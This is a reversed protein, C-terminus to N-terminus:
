KLLIMKKLQTFRKNTQMEGAADIRYFYLGSSVNANWVADYWGASQVSNVLDAIQQGLTYYNKMTLCSLSRVQDM